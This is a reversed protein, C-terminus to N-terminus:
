HAVSSKHESVVAGAAATLVNIEPSIKKEERGREKSVTPLVLPFRPTASFFSSSSSSPTINLPSAHTRACWGSTYTPTLFSTTKQTYIFWIHEDQFGSTAAHMVPALLTASSYLIAPQTTRALMPACTTSSPLTSINPRQTANHLRHPQWFPGISADKRSRTSAHSCQRAFPLRRIASSGTCRCLHGWVPRSLSKEDERIIEPLSSTGEVVNIWKPM